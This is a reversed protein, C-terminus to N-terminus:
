AASLAPLRLSSPLDTSTAAVRDPNLLTVDVFDCLSGTELARCVQGVQLCAAILATSPVGLSTGALTIAGCQTLRKEDVLRALGPNLEQVEAAGTPVPWAADVSRRGPFSLLRIDFIEEATKGLGADVVLPFRGDACLRRAIVNDVGVLAIAPDTDDRFTKAHLRNEIISTEFGLGEAYTAASRVKKRNMWQPETLIQIMRNEEGATDYDQFYFHADGRDSYPLLGLVFLVAQGLNGLGIQWLAKPLRKLASGAFPNAPDWASLHLPRRCALLDDLIASRFAESVALAGAMVGSIVNGDEGREIPQPSAVGRWGDALVYLNVPGPPRTGVHIRFAQDPLGTERCGLYILTRRMSAGRSPGVQVPCASIGSIFTGGRFMRVGLAAIAFLAAQAWAAGPENTTIILRGSELRARADDAYTGPDHAMLLQALRDHEIPILM